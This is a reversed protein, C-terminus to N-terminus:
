GLFCWSSFFFPAFVAAVCRMLPPADWAGEAVDYPGWNPVILPTGGQEATIRQLLEDQRKQLRSSISSAHASCLLAIFLVTLM